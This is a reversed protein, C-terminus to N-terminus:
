ASSASDQAGRELRRARSSSWLNDRWTMLVVIGIAVLSGYFLFEAMNSVLYNQRSFIKDWFGDEATIKKNGAPLQVQLGQSRAAVRMVSRIRQSEAQSFAASDASAYVQVSVCFVFIFTLLGILLTTTKVADKM